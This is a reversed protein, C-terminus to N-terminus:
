APANKEETGAELFKVMNYVARNVPVDIGARDALRLVAGNLAEVETWKRARIDQLMSPEHAATAPILREYFVKRYDEPRDWHTAYGSAKIVAFVESHIADMIERTHPSEALVGYPVRFIAGLPNLACNYLMKAWLDRAIDRTAQCPIDGRTIAECLPEIPSLEAGCLSGVSIADAHVTIEVHHKEPRSFGTIVRGNYVREEPLCSAFVEENGWGNQFLVIRTREGLLSAHAAIDRAAFASDSSKTSVLVYDCPGELPLDDLRTSCSFAEPPAHWTGFIGTRLLGKARLARVTDERAVILVTAGAKLLCSALGLGVAGAGYVLVNM